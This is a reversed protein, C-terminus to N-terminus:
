CFPTEDRLRYGARAQLRTLPAPQFRTPTSTHPHPLPSYPLTPIHSHPLPTLLNPRLIRTPAHPAKDYVKDYDKDIGRSATFPSSRTARLKRRARGWAETSVQPLPRPTEGRETQPPSAAAVRFVFLNLPTQPTGLWLEERSAVCWESRWRFAVSMSGRRNGSYRHVEQHRKDLIAVHFM